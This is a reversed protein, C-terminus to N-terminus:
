RRTKDIVFKQTIKPKDSSAAVELLQDREMACMPASRRQPTSDPRASAPTAHSTGAPAWGSTPPSGVGTRSLAPASSQSATSHSESSAYPGQDRNQHSAEPPYVSIDIM